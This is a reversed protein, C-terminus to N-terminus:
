SHLNQASSSQAENIRESEKPIAVRFEAKTKRNRAAKLPQELVSKASSGVTRAGNGLVNMARGFTRLLFLNILNLHLNYIRRRYTPYM